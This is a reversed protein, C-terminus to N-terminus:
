LLHNAENLVMEYSITNIDIPSFHKYKECIDVNQEIEKMIQPPYIYYGKPFVDQPYPNFRKVHNGNSICIFSTDVSVAIHVASTENSILLKSSKILDILQLLNTKGVLNKIRKNNTKQMLILSDSIESKGGTIYVDCEYKETIYMALKAYNTPSWRFQPTSSGIFLVVYLSTRQPKNPINLQPKQIEIKEGLFETILYKNRLFEFTCYSPCSILNNITLSETNSKNNIFDNVPAVKIKVNSNEIIRDYLAVRSFVPYLLYESKEKAIRNSLILAYEDKEVQKKSFWVFEDVYSKDYKKAVNKYTVEGVFIIKYSKFQKSNRIVELFNRFLIYDGIADTRFIILTKSYTETNKPIIVDEVKIINKYVKQHTSLYDLIKKASKYDFLLLIKIIVKRIWKGM